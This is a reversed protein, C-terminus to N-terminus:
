FSTLRGNYLSVPFDLFYYLVRSCAICVAVSDHLFLFTHLLPLSFAVFRLHNEANSLVFACFIQEIKIM